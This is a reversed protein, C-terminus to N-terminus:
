CGETALLIPLFFIVPLWGEKPPRPNFMVLMSWREAYIYLCLNTWLSCGTGTSKERERERKKKKKKKTVECPSVASEPLTRFVRQVGRCRIHCFLIPTWQQILWLWLSKSVIERQQPTCCWTGPPVGMISIVRIYPELSGMNEASSDGLSGMNKSITLITEATVWLGWMKQHFTPEKIARVWLGGIKQMQSGCSAVKQKLKMSLNIMKAMKSSKKKLNRSKFRESFSWFYCEWGIGRIKFWFKAEWGIVGIKQSQTRVSHGATQLTLRVGTDM